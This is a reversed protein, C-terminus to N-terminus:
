PSREAGDTSIRVLEIGDFLASRAVVETPVSTLVVWVSDGPELSVTETLRLQTWTTRSTTQGARKAVRSSLSEGIVLVIAGGGEPSLARVFGSLELRDGTRVNPVSVYAFGTTPAWDADLRLSWDGEGPTAENMPMALNDDGFRWFALTPEGDREFSGNQILNESAAPRAGSPEPESPSQAGDCGFVVAISLLAAFALRRKIGCLQSVGDSGYMSTMM